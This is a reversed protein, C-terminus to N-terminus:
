AQPRGDGLAFITGNPAGEFVTSGYVLATREPTMAPWPGFAVPLTRLLAAATPTLTEGHGAFPAVPIGPLLELVAPAPVGLVGHACAVEGDALPVPAVITAEPALRVFLECALGIDLISDLAGVEHFHIDKPEAGHVRGEAQALLTFTAKALERARPLLQARDLLALIDDLTRHAHQRPLDVRARWGGIGHVSAREVAVRGELEPMVRGALAGLEGNGVDAMRALGALFIDGALGSHSRITLIRRCGPQRAAGHAHSHGDHGHGDHDHGHPAPVEPASAPKPKQEAIPEHM